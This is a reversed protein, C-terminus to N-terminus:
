DRATTNIQQKVAKVFNSVDEHCYFTKVYPFDTCMICCRLMCCFPAINNERGQYPNIEMVAMQPAVIETGWNCFGASAINRLAQIDKIDTIAYVQKEYRWGINRTIIVKGSSTISVRADLPENCREPPCLNIPGSGYYSSLSGPTFCDCVDHVGIFWPIIEEIITERDNGTYGQCSKSPKTTPQVTIPELGIQAMAHM